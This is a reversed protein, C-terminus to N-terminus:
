TRDTRGILLVDGQYLTCAPLPQDANLFWLKRQSLPPDAPPPGDIVLWDRNLLVAHAVKTQELDQKLTAVEYRLNRLVKQAWAPLTNESHERM